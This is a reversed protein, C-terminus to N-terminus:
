HSKISYRQHYDIVIEKSNEFNDTSYWTSDLSNNKWSIKYQLKKNRETKKFNLVDNLEYEEKEDIIISSSSKLIQSSLSDNSAKRLLFIHFIDHIKMSDFLNLQCSVSLMKKIRYSDIMKWNLKKSLRAIKINKISLWILDNEKYNSASARKKNTNIKQDEQAKILKRTTFEIMEKMKKAINVKKIQLIRERASESSSISDFSMRSEFNYNIMFAFIDILAIIIANFAYEIM